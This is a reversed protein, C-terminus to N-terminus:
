RQPITADRTHTSPLTPDRQDSVLYDQHPLERDEPTCAMTLVFAPSQLWHQRASVDAAGRIYVHERSEGKERTVVAFQHGRPLQTRYFGGSDTIFTAVVPMSAANTAGERVFLVQQAFPVIRAYEAAQEATPATEQLWPRQWTLQGSVECLDPGTSAEPSPLSLWARSFTHRLQESLPTRPDHWILFFLIMTTAMSGILVHLCTVPDPHETRLRPPPANSM